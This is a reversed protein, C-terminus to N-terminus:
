FLEHPSKICPHQSARSASSHPWAMLDAPWIPRTRAPWARLGCARVPAPRGAGTASCLRQPSPPCPRLGAAWGWPTLRSPLSPPCRVVIFRGRSAGVPAALFPLPPSSGPRGEEIVTCPLYFAALPIELRARPHELRGRAAPSPPPWPPSPNPRSASSLWPSFSTSLLPPSPNEAAACPSKYAVFLPPSCRSSPPPM